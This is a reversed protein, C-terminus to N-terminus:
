RASLAFWTTRAIEHAANGLVLALAVGAGGLEDGTGDGEGAILQADDVIAPALATGQICSPKTGNKLEGAPSATSGFAPRSTM